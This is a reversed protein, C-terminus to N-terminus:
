YLVVNGQENTDKQQLPTRIQSGAQNDVRSKQQLRRKYWGFHKQLDSPYRYEEALKHVKNPM